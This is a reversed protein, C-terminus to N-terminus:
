VGCRNECDWVVRKCSLALLFRAVTMGPRSREDQESVQEPGVSMVGSKWGEMRKPFYAILRENWFLAFHQKNEVTGPTDSSITVPHMECKSGLDYKEVDKKNINHYEIGSITPGSKSCGSRMRLFRAVEQQVCKVPAPSEMAVCLNGAIRSAPIHVCDRKNDNKNGKKSDLLIGQKGFVAEAQQQVYSDTGFFIRPISIQFTAETMHKCVVGSEPPPACEFVGSHSAQTCFFTRFPFTTLMTEMHEAIVVQMPAACPAASQPSAAASSPPPPIASSAPPPSVGAGDASPPPFAAGCLPPAGCNHAIHADQATSPPLLHALIASIQSQQTQQLNLIRELSQLILPLHDLEQQGQQSTQFHQAMQVQDPQTNQLHQAQLRPQEQQGQPEPQILPQAQLRFSSHSDLLRQAKAHAKPSKTGWMLPISLPSTEMANHVQAQLDDLSRLPSEGGHANAQTDHLSRKHNSTGSCM